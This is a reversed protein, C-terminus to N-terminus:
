RLRGAQHGTGVEGPAGLIAIDLEADKVVAAAQSFGDLPFHAVRFVHDEFSDHRSQVQSAQCVAAAYDRTQLLDPVIQVLYSRVLSAGAELSLYRGM